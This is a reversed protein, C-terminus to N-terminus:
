ILLSELPSCSLILILLIKQNRMNLINKIQRSFYITIFIYVKRKDVITLFDFTYKYAYYIINKVRASFM